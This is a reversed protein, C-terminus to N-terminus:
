YQSLNYCLYFQCLLFLDFEKLRNHRALYDHLEQNDILHRLEGSSWIIFKEQEIYQYLIGPADPPRTCSLANGIFGLYIPKRDIAVVFPLGNSGCSLTRKMTIEEKCKKWGDKSLIIEHNKWEYYIIDNFSILPQDPLQIQKILYQVDGTIEENMLLVAQKEDLQTIIYIEVGRSKEEQGYISGLLLMVYAVVFYLYSRKM